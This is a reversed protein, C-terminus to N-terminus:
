VVAAFVSNSSHGDARPHASPSKTSLYASNVQVHDTAFLSYNEWTFIDGSTCTCTCTSAKEKKERKERVGMGEEGQEM